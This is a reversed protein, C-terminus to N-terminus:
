YTNWVPQFVEFIIEGSILKLHRDPAVPVGGFNPHFLSPTMLVFFRCYRRLLLVPSIPLRMGTCRKSQCWFCHGQIVNFPRFTVGAYIFFNPLGGSFNSPLFKL